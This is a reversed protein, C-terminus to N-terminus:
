VTLFLKGREIELEFRLVRGFFDFALWDVLNRGGGIM